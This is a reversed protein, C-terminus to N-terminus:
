PMMKFARLNLIPFGAPGYWYGRNLHQPLKLLSVYNYSILNSYANTAEDRSWGWGLSIGTNANNLITNSSINTEILFGGLIVSCDHYEVPIGDFFNNTITMYGTPTHTIFTFACALM